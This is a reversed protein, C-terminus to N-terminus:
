PLDSGAPWWDDARAQEKTFPPQDPFDGEPLDTEVAARVGAFGYADAFEVDERAALSPNDALHRALARRQELITLKWSRSRREPQVLSKLLHTNLVVYLNYLERAEKRGLAEIEEALHDWDLENTSRRCLAEAQALAWAHLDAEYTRDM